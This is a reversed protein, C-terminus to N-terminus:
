RKIKALIKQFISKIISMMYKFEETRGFCISIAMSSVTISATGEILFTLFNYKGYFFTQKILHLLFVQLTTLITYSIYKNWIQCFDAMSQFYKWYLLASKTIWFFLQSVVTGILVGTIGMSQVLGISLGLNIAAGLINIYKEYKFYGLVTTFECIPGYVIGIYIDFAILYLIIYDMIYQSGFAFGVFADASICLGTATINALVYRIFTYKRFIGLNEKSEKLQVNNGITAVISDTISYTLHKVANTVYTYNSFGGALTIGSFTSIVLNDTSSYAYGAIKGILVDKADGFLDNIGKFKENSKIKAFSYNRDCYFSLILNGTITQFLQLFLYIHYNRFAILIVIRFLSFVINCFIDVIKCVFQKQDVFILSRKYAFFYSSATATLQVLYATCIFTIDFSADNIFIPLFVMLLLGLVFVVIGIIRYLTRYIQMLTSLTKTDNQVLPKYLRFSIATGVGLEAFSLFGLTETIVSNIGIIELGLYRLFIRQSYFGIVMSCIQAIMGISSNKIVVRSNSM